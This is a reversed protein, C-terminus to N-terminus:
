MDNLPLNKVVINCANKYKNYGLFGFIMNIGINFTMSIIVVMSMQQPKRMSNELPMLLSMNHVAFLQVCVVLPIKTYDTFMTLRSPSPFDYILYLVTIFLGGSIFISGIVSFPMLYVFNPVLSFALYIPM